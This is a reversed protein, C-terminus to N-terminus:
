PRWCNRWRHVSFCDSRQWSLPSRHLTIRWMAPHNSLSLLFTSTRDGDMGDLLLRMRTVRYFGTESGSFLASLFVGLTFLLLIGLLIM